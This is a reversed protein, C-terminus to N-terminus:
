KQGKVRVEDARSKKAGGVVAAQGQETESKSEVRKVRVEDARSRKAGGVAAAQGQQRLSQNM